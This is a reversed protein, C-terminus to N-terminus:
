TAHHWCRGLVAGGWCRGLVARSWCRGLVAGGWCWECVRSSAGREARPILLYGPPVNCRKQGSRDCAPDACAYCM